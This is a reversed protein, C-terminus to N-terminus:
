TLTIGYRVKSVKGNELEFVVTSNENSYTISVPTEAVYEIIGSDQMHRYIGYLISYTRDGDLKIKQSSGSNPFKDIVSQMDDGVKVNRTHYIKNDHIIALYVKGNYNDIEFVTEGYILKTGTDDGLLPMTQRESPEGFISVIDTEKNTFMYGMEHFSFKDTNTYKKATIFEVEPTGDKGNYSFYYEAYANPTYIIMKYKPAGEPRIVNTNLVFNKSTRRNEYILNDRVLEDNNFRLSWIQISINEDKPVILIQEGGTQDLM